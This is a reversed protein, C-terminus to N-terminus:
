KLNIARWHTFSEDMDILESVYRIVIYDEDEIEDENNMIVPLNKEIELLQKGKIYGNSHREIPIWRQSFEVGAMFVDAFDNEDAPYSDRYGQLYINACEKAAEEITKM